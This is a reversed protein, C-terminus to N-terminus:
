RLPQANLFPKPKSNSKAVVGGSRRFVGEASTWKTEVWTLARGRWDAEFPSKFPSENIQV